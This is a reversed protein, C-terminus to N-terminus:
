QFYILSRQLISGDNACSYLEPQTNKDFWVVQLKNVSFCTNASFTKFLVNGRPKFQHRGVEEPSTLGPMKAMMIRGDSLGVFVSICFPDVAVGRIGKEFPTEQCVRGTRLDVFLLRAQEAVIVVGYREALCMSTVPGVVTKTVVTEAQLLSGIKIEGTNGVNGIALVYLSEDIFM